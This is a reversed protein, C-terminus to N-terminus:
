HTHQTLLPRLGNVLKDLAPLAEIIFMQATRKLRLMHPTVDGDRWIRAAAEERLRTCPRQEVRM